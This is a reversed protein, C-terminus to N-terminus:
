YSEGSANVPPDFRKYIPLPSLLSDLAIQRQVLKVFLKPLFVEEAVALM